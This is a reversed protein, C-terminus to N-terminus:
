RPLPPAAPRRVTPQPASPRPATNTGARTPTSGTADGVHGGAPAGPPRTFQRLRTEAKDILSQLEAPDHDAGSLGAKGGTASRLEAAQARATTWARIAEDRRGLRHEVDGLRLWAEPSHPKLEIFQVLRERAVPYQRQMAAVLALGDIAEAYDARFSLAESFRRGAENLDGVRILTEGLTTLLAPDSPTYQLANELHARALRYQGREDYRAAMERMRAAEAYNTELEPPPLTHTPEPRVPAPTEIVPDAPTAERVPTTVPAPRVEVDAVLTSDTSAPESTVLTPAPETKPKPEVPAPKPTPLTLGFFEAAARNGAQDTVVIQTDLPQRAEAPVPWTLVGGSLHAAGGDQWGSATNYYVRISHDNLREDIVVVRAHFVLQEGVRMLLPEGAQLTPAKTDVSVRLQAPTGPTPPESSAGFRNILVLFFDYDGDDSVVFRISGPREPEVTKGAWTQGADRSIWVNAKEVPTDADAVYSLVIERTNLFRREQASAGASFAM